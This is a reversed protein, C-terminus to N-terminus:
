DRGFPRPYYRRMLADAVAFLKAAAAARGRACPNLKGGAGQLKVSREPERITVTEGVGPIAQRQGCESLQEAQSRLVRDATHWLM